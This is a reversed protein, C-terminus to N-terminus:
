KIQRFLGYVEEMTDVYDITEVGKFDEMDPILAVIEDWYHPEIGREAAYEFCSKIRGAGANYAAMTFKFLEDEDAAIQRYRWVMNKINLAGALINQRPDHLDYIGYHGATPPTVQMLGIAGKRSVANLDFKSEHYSLAALMHWDWGISDACEVFYKRYPIIVTDLRGRVLSDLFTLRTWNLAELSDQAYYATVELPAPIQPEGSFSSRLLAAALTAALLASLIALSVKETRTM